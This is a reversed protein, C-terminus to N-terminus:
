AVDAPVAVPLPEVNEVPVADPFLEPDKVLETKIAATIAAEEATREIANGAQALKDGAKDVAAQTKAAARDTRANVEQRDCAALAFVGLAIAVAAVAPKRNM